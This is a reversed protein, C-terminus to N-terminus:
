GRCTATPRGTARDRMIDGPKLEDYSIVTSIDDLTGTWRSEELHWAMSVFGSCDTRSTKSEGTGQRLREPPVPREVRELLARDGRIPQDTRGVGEANALASRCPPSSSASCRWSPAL